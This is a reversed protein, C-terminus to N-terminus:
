KNPGFLTEVRLFGTRHRDYKPRNKVTVRFGFNHNAVEIQCRIKSAEGHCHVDGKAETGDEREKEM